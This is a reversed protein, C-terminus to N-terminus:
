FHKLIRNTQVFLIFFLPSLFFSIFFIPSQNRCLINKSRYSGKRLTAGVHLDNQEGDKSMSETIKEFTENGCKSTIKDDLLVSEAVHIQLLVLYRM